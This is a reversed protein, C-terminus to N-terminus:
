DKGDGDSHYYAVLAGPASPAGPIVFRRLLSLAKAFDSESDSIGYKM